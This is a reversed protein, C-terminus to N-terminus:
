RAASMRERVTTACSCRNAASGLRRLILDHINSHFSAACLASAQGSATEPLAADAAARAKSSDPWLPPETGLDAAFVPAGSETPWWVLCSLPRFGNRLRCGAAHVPSYQAGLQQLLKAVAQCTLVATLQSCDGGLGLFVAGEPSVGGDRPGGGNNGHAAVSSRQGSLYGFKQADAAPTLYAPRWKLEPQQWTTQSDPTAAPSAQEAAEVAAASSEHHAASDAADPSQDAPAVLGERGRFVM